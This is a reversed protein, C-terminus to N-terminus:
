NPTILRVLYQMLKIPKITPHNNKKSALKRISGDKREMEYM